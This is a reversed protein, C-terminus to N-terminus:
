ETDFEKKRGNNKVKKFFSFFDYTTYLKGIHLYNFNTKLNEFEERTIEKDINLETIKERTFKYPSNVIKRIINGPINHKLSLRHILLEIKNDNKNM